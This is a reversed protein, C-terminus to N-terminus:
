SEYTRELYTKYREICKFNWDKMPIQCGAAGPHGGGGFSMAADRASANEGGFFTVKMTDTGKTYFVMRLPFKEDIDEISDFIFSNSARNVALCRIGNVETIFGYHELYTEMEKEIIARNQVGAFKVDTVTKTVWVSDESTPSQDMYNIGYYFDKIDEYTNSFTDYDSVYKIMNILRQTVAATQPKYNEYGFHFKSLPTQQVFQSFTTNAIAGMLEYEPNIVHRYKEILDSFRLGYLWIYVM